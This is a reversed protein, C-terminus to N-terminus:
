DLRLRNLARGLPRGLRVLHNGLASLARAHAGIHGRRDVLCEIGDVMKNLGAGGLSRLLGVVVTNGLEKDDALLEQRGGLGDDSSGGGDLLSQLNELDLSGLRACRPTAAQTCRRGHRGRWRNLRDRRRAVRLLRERWAEGLWLAHIDGGEGDGLELRLQGCTAQCDAAELSVQLAAQRRGQLRRRGGVILDRADHNGLALEAHNGLLGVLLGVAHGLRAARSHGRGLNALQSNRLKTVLERAQAQRGVAELQLQTLPEHLGPHCLGGFAGLVDLLLHLVGRDDLGLDDDFRNLAHLDLGAAAAMCARCRGGRGHGLGLEGLSGDLGLGLALGGRSALGDLLALRGRGGLRGAAPAPCGRVGLRARGAHAVVLADRLRVHRARARCTAALSGGRIGRLLHRCGLSRGHGRRGALTALSRGNLDGSSCLQDSREVGRDRGCGLRLGLARALRRLLIGLGGAGRGACGTRAAM